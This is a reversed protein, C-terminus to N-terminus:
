QSNKILFAGEELFKGSKKDVVTNYSEGNHGHVVVLLENLSAHAIVQCTRRATDFYEHGFLFEEEENKEVLQLDNPGYLVNLGTLDHRVIVGVQLGYRYEKIVVEDVVGSTSNGKTKVRDGKKFECNKLIREIRVDDEQCKVIHVRRCNFERDPSAVSRGKIDNASSMFEAAGRRFLEMNLAHKYLEVPIILEEGLFSVGTVADFARGTDDIVIQNKLVLVVTRENLQRGEVYLKENASFLYCKDGEKIRRLLPEKVLKFYASCTRTQNEGIHMM